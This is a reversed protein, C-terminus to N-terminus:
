RRVSIWRWKMDVAGTHHPCFVELKADDKPHEIFSVGFIKLLEEVLQEVAFAATFKWEDLGLSQDILVLGALEL